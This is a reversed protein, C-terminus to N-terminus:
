RKGSGYLRHILTARDIELVPKADKMLRTAAMGKLKGRVCNSEILL